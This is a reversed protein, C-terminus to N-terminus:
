NLTPRIYVPILGNAPDAYRPLPSVSIKLGFIPLVSINQAGPKNKLCPIYIDASQVSRLHLINWNEHASRQHFIM